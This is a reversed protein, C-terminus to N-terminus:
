MFALLSSVAIWFGAQMNFAARKNSVASYSFIWNLILYKPNFYREVMVFNIVSNNQISDCIIRSIGILFICVDLTIDFKFKGSKKGFSYQYKPQGFLRSIQIEYQEKM